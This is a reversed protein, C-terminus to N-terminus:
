GMQGLFTAFDQEPSGGQGTGGKGGQTLDPRPTHSTNETAKAIRAAITRMAAEDTVSQLLALDDKDSIGLEIAVSQVVNTHQTATFQVQLATVQEALKSESTEEPKLGFAKALADTQKQQAQQLEQIQTELAQRKDRETALDALVAAKGGKGDDDVPTPTVPTTTTTTATTTTDSAEAM